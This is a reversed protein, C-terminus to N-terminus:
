LGTLLGKLAAATPMADFSSMRMGTADDTVAVNAGDWVLGTDGAAAPYLEVHVVRGGRTLTVRTMRLNEVGHVTELQVPVERHLAWAIVAERLAVLRREFADAAIAEYDRDDPTQDSM